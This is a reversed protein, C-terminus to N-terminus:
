MVLIDLIMYGCIKNYGDLKMEIQLTLDSRKGDIWLDLDVKLGSNDNYKYIRFLGKEDPLASLCGGYQHLVRKIDGESVRCLANHEKLFVYDEKQLCTVIEKCIVYVEEIRSEVEM